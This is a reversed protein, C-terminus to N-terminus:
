VMEVQILHEIKAALAARGEPTAVDATFSSDLQQVQALSLAFEGLFYDNQAELLLLDNRDLGPIFASTWAPDLTLAHKAHANSDVYNQTSMGTPESNAHSAFAWGAYLDALVSTSGSPVTFWDTYIAM